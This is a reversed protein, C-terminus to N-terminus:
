EELPWPVRNQRSIRTARIRAFGSGWRAHRLEAMLEEDRRNSTIVRAVAEGSMVDGVQLPKAYSKRDDMRGRM